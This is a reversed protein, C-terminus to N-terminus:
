EVRPGLSPIRVTPADCVTLHRGDVNDQELKAIGLPFSAGLVVALALPARPTRHLTMRIVFPASLAPHEATLGLASAEALLRDSRKGARQDFVAFRFGRTARSPWADPRPEASTSGGLYMSVPGRAGESDAVIAFRGSASVGALDVWTNEVVRCTRTGTVAAIGEVTEWKNDRRRSTVALPEIVFGRQSLDEQGRPFAYVPGSGLAHRIADPLRPVVTFPKSARRGGFASARLLMDVASDEAAFMAGPSAMNLMVKVQRLTAREHGHSRVWDDREEAGVRAAQVAPLLLLLLTSIVSRLRGRGIATVIERLGLAALWWLGVVWPALMIRPSMATGAAPGLCVLAVGATVLSRRLGARHAEVFMGLMALALAFPGFLWGVTSTFVIARSLDPLAPACSALAHSSSSGALVDPRSLNLVALAVLTLGAAAAGGRSWRGARGARPLAISVTVGSGIAAIAIWPPVVLAGLLLIGVMRLLFAYSTRTQRDVLPRMLLAGGACVAFSAAEWPPALSPVFLPGLGVALGTAAAVALNHTARFVLEVFMALGAVTAVAHLVSFLAGVTLDPQIRVAAISMLELLGPCPSPDALELFRGRIVLAAPGILWPLARRGMVILRASTYSTM